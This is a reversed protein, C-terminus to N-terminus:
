YRDNSYGDEYNESDDNDPEEGYAAVEDLFDNADFTFSGKEAINIIHPYTDINFYQNVITETRAFFAIYAELLMIDVQPYLSPIQSIMGYLQVDSITSRVAWLAIDHELPGFNPIPNYLFPELASQDDSTIITTHPDPNGHLVAFSPFNPISLLRILTVINAVMGELEDIPFVPLSENLTSLVIADKQRQQLLYTHNIVMNNLQKPSMKVVHSPEGALLIGNGLKDLVAYHDEIKSLMPKRGGIILNSEAVGHFYKIVPSTIKLAELQPYKQQLHPPYFITSVHVNKAEKYGEITYVSGKSYKDVVKTIHRQKIYNDIVNPLKRLWDTTEADPYRQSIFDIYKKSINM